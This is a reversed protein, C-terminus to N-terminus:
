DKDPIRLTPTWNSAWTLQLRMVVLNLFAFRNVVLHLLLPEVVMLDRDIAVMIM